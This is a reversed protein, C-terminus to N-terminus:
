EILTRGEQAVQRLRGNKRMFTDTQESTFKMLLMQPNGFKVVSNVRVTAQKKDGSLTISEIRHDTDIQFGGPMQSELKKATAFFQEMSACAQPKDTSEEVRGARSVTTGTGRFGDDLAECMTKADREAFAQIQATYHAHIDAESIRKSGALWYWGAGALIALVVFIRM